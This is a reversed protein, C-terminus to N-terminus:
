DGLIDGLVRNVSERFNAGIELGALSEGAGAESFFLELIDVAAQAAYHRVMGVTVAGSFVVSLILSDHLRIAYLGYGETEQLSSDFMEEEGFIQAARASASFSGSMLAALTIAAGRDINGVSTILRGGSSSLVVCRARLDERLSKMLDDMREAIQPSLQFPRRGRITRQYLLDQVIVLLDQFSFPAALTLCSSAGEQPPAGRGQLCILPVSWELAAAAELWVPSEEVGNLLVLHVPHHELLSLGEAASAARLVEYGEAVLSRELFASLTTASDILLIQNLM